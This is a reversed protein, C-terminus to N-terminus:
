NIAGEPRTRILNSAVVPGFHERSGPLVFRTRRSSKAPSPVEHAAELHRLVQLLQPEGDKVRGAVVVPHKEVGLERRAPPPHEAAVLTAPLMATTGLIVLETDRGM